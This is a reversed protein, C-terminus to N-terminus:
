IHWTYCGECTPSGCLIWITSCLLRCSQSESIPFLSLLVRSGCMWINSSGHHDDLQSLHMGERAVSNWCPTASSSINQSGHFCTLIWGNLLSCWSDVIFNFERLIRNCFTWFFESMTWARSSVWFSESTMRIWSGGHDSIQFTGLEDLLSPSGRILVLWWELQIMNPLYGISLLSEGLTM